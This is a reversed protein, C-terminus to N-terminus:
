GDEVVVVHIFKDCRTASLLRRLPLGAPENILYTVKMGRRVAELVSWIPGDGAGYEVRTFDIIIESFCSEDNELHRRIIDQVLRGSAM